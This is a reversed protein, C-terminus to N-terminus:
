LEAILKKTIYYKGLGNAAEAYPSKTQGAKM